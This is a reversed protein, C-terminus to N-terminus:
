AAPHETDLAVIIPHAGVSGMHIREERTYAMWKPRIGRVRLRECGDGTPHTVCPATEEPVNFAAPGPFPVVVGDSSRKADGCCALRAAAPRDTNASFIGEGVVQAAEDLVVVVAEAGPRIAED